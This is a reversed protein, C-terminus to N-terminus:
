LSKRVKRFNPGPAQQIQPFFCKSWSFKSFKICDLLVPSGNSIHLATVHKKSLQGAYFFEHFNAYFHSHFCIKSFMNENVNEHMQLKATKTWIKMFNEGFHLVLWNPIIYVMQSLKQENKIPFPGPGINQFDPRPFDPKIGVAKVPTELVMLYSDNVWVSLM